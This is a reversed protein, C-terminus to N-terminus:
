GLSPFSRDGLPSLHEEVSPLDSQPLMDVVYHGTSSDAGTGVIGMGSDAWNNGDWGSTPVCNRRDYRVIPASIEINGNYKVGTKDNEWRIIM